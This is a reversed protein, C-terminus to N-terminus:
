ATGHKQIQRKKPQVEDAVNTIYENIIEPFRRFLDIGEDVYKTCDSNPFQFRAFAPRSRRRSNVDVGHTLIAYLLDDPGAEEINTSYLDLQGNTALTKRFEASRPVESPEAICSQTILVRGCTIENYYGTNNPYPKVEVSIDRPFRAQIGAWEEEIKARRYNGSLDKAQPNSFYRWCYRSAQAYNEFVSILLARQVIRPVHM